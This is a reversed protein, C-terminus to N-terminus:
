KGLNPFYFTTCVTSPRFEAGGLLFESVMSGRFIGVFRGGVWGWGSFLALVRAEM